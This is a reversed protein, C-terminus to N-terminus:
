DPKLAILKALTKETGLRIGTYAEFSGIAMHRFLDFGSITTLGAQEAAMLFETNTPTYVADFAWRQGGMLPPAISSGPYQAMGLATANVLGDAQRVVRPAEQAPVAEAMPGIRDALAQAREPVVDWLNIKRAGLKILAPGIAQAVGGAGAMAVQGPSDAGMIHRWAGLFGSHDTNFGKLPNDFVLTNAAGLNAAEGTMGNGAYRAADIKFPHTVTVGTWGAEILEMIQRDFDFAGSQATDILDFALEIGAEDCMIQLAAPLRTKQIHEGILSARLTQGAAIM